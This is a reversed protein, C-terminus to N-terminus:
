DDDKVWFLYEHGNSTRRHKVGMDICADFFAVKPRVYSGQEKCYEKYTEYVWGRPVWAKKTYNSNRLFGMMIHNKIHAKALQLEAETALRFVKRPAPVPYEEDDYYILDGNFMDIIAPRSEM